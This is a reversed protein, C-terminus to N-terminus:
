WTPAARIPSAVTLLTAINPHRLNALLKGENQFRRLFDMGRLHAAVVKLAVKREFLGDNREALYVASTGGRGLLQLLRYSGFRDAPLFESPAQSPVAGPDGTLVFKDQERLANLLAEAEARIPPDPEEAAIWAAREEEPRQLAGDFLEQVREWDRPKM